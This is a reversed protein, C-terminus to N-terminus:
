ETWTALVSDARMWVWLGGDGQVTEPAYKDFLICTSGDAEIWDVGSSWVMARLVRASGEGLPGGEGDCDSFGFVRGPAAKVKHWWM